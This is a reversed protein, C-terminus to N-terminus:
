AALGSQALQRLVYQLIGGHIFYDQEKPTVIRVVVDFTKKKGDAATATIALERVHQTGLGEILGLEEAIPIFVAPSVPKGNRSWRVLSEFGVCMGPKLTEPGANTELVVEGELVYVFEDQTLHAHRSSSQGGPIIRVLNVGFNRLGAHNGLQRFWRTMNAARFKAPYATANSEPLTLPDFAVPPKSM